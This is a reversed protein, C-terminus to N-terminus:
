CATCMGRAIGSCATASSQSPCAQCGKGCCGSHCGACGVLKGADESRVAIKVCSRQKAVVPWKVNLSAGHLLSSRLRDQMYWHGGQLSACRDGAELCVADDQLTSDGLDAHGYDIIKWTCDTGLAQNDNCQQPGNRCKNPCAAAADGPSDTAHGRDAAPGNSAADHAGGKCTCSNAKQGAARQMAATALKHGQGQSDAAVSARAPCEAKWGDAAPQMSLQSPRHEM